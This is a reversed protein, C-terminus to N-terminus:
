LDNEGEARHANLELLRGLVEDHIPNPWRYRYRRNRRGSAPQDDEDEHEPLFECRTPIGTWGHAALVAHDMAAHLNRLQAIDPDREDPDHFRNYTKTLGEDNMVMLDARFDHYARGAAELAPDTTWGRPFPFTEFVDSPTYRLDDKMSSGFFRAWIEHPRSQLACFAAHTDLPFIVVTHGYIMTSPLFAFACQQGVQSIALVRDLDAIARHLKPRDNAFRWWRQKHFRDIPSGGLRDRAPKVRERVVELLEPWDAAVPGPYDAPVVGDRLWNRRSDEGASTWQGDGSKMRRLPWDRFSIAYRHHAHTPSTNIEQGGIYPLIVERHAPENGVLREMDALPSAVGKKDTDDFTFGMGRLFSGIYSLEVNASLRVPDNHGGLHFLFATIREVPRGDLVRAHQHRLGKAVHVISVVVTAAGPWKYRTSACYITGGNSCIWRLGGVRTDGQSITNTAILGFTGDSRLLDFARRFFHAALDTGGTSAQHAHKLWDRYLRGLVTSIRKGGVFPPNGVVVDFGPNERGFVEPFEIEWHFPAFVPSAKRKAELRERHEDSGGGELGAWGLVADLHARRRAERGKVKTELFFAEIALDGFLRVEKLAAEVEEWKDELEWQPTGAGAERIEGRLRVVRDVADSVRTNLELQPPLAGTKWTFAAIQRRTLGVLSDGDRLAHDVFTLAEDRALTALWLSMKALDVAMPNRDVGYLCKQAVVRGAFVLEDEGPPVGPRGGHVKWADVLKDALQRCVEVLFAGSGMAPDCIKLDLLEAPKPVGGEGLGELVPELARRVIPETLERPTYHSGSRRREDSPQLIMAGRPVLDPTAASDVVNALAAHLETM